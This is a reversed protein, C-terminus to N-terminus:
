LGIVPGGDPLPENLQLRKLGVGREFRMIGGYTAVSNDAGSPNGHIVKEGEFSLESIKEKTLKGDFLEGVAATTAVDFM